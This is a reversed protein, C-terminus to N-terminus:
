NSVAAYFHIDNIIAAYGASYGPVPEKSGEM